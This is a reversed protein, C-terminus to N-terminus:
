LVMRAGVITLVVALLGRLVAQPSHTALRSGLIIGPISGLLLWGLLEFDVNGLSLHGAGAVLALPIAHAIDTAVLRVPTLRYPFLYTLVAAGLAGAGISTLTVLVGIVGGSLVTLVPQASRFQEPRGTRLHQGLRHLYSRGAQAVGTVILAWGLAGIILQDAVKEISESHLLWLTILAAPISGLMLWRVVQWDITKQFGHTLAGASKTMSAYLLDTGVATQAPVGFVLVLLPTMLAGGGVGTLGVIVGVAFGSLSMAYHPVM